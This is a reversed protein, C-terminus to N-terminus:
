KLFWPATEVQLKHVAQGVAVPINLIHDGLQLRSCSGLVGEEDVTM